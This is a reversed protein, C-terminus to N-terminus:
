VVEAFYRTPVARGSAHAILEHRLESKADASLEHGELATFGAGDADYWVRAVTHRSAGDTWLVQIVERSSTSGLAFSWQILIPGTSQPSATAVM